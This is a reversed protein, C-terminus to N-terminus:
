FYVKVGIESFINRKCLLFFIPFSVPLFLVTRLTIKWAELQYLSTIIGGHAMMCSAGSSQKFQWAKCVCQLKTSWILSLSLSKHLSISLWCILLTNTYNSLHWIKKEPGKYHLNTKCFPGCHNGFTVTYVQPDFHLVQRDQDVYRTM